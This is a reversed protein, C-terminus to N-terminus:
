CAAGEKDSFEKLMHRLGYQDTDLIVQRAQRTLVNIVVPCRLNVTSEEPTDKIVCIVYCAMDEEKKIDLAKNDDRSLKPDYEEMLLFPNMMLFSLQEEDVSQLYIMAGSDDEEDVALPVFKKYEEFGFLGDEFHILDKEEYQIMDQQKEESM